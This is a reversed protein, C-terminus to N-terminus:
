KGINSYIIMDAICDMDEDSLDDARRVHEAFFSGELWAYIYADAESRLITVETGDPSMHTRASLKSIDDETDFVEYGSSLTGYMSNYGYVSIQGEVTPLEVYYSICFTGEDFYYVKDFGAPTERFINGSCGAEAIKQILEDRTYFGPGTHGESAELLLTADGRLKLGYRAAIEELKQAMEQTYVHYNFDYGAIGGRAMLDMYVEFQRNEEAAATRTEILPWADWNEIEAPDDPFAFFEITVTGDENETRKMTGAREPREFVAPRSPGNEMRWADWEEWAARSNEIKGAIEPDIGEPVTQPQTLSILGGEPNPTLKVTGDEQRELKQAQAESDEIFLARVGPFDAAYAGVALAATIAAAILVTRLIKKGKYRRQKMTVETEPSFGGSEAMLREWVREQAGDPLSIKNYSVIFRKDTM